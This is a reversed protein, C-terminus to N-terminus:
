EDCTSRLEASCSHHNPSRTKSTPRGACCTLTTYPLSPMLVVVVYPTHGVATVDVGSAEIYATLARAYEHYYDVERRNMRELQAGADRAGGRLWRVAEIRDCRASSCPLIHFQADVCHVSLLEM